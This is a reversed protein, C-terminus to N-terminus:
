PNQARIRVFNNRRGAIRVSGGSCSITAPSRFAMHIASEKKWVPYMSWIWTSYGDANKAASMATITAATTLATQEERLLNLNRYVTARSITPHEKVIEAYIQDATAHCQLKNVAELVLSRQITNRNKM